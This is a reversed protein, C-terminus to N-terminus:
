GSTKSLCTISHTSVRLDVIPLPSDLSKCWTVSVLFVAVNPSLQRDLLVAPACDEPDGM